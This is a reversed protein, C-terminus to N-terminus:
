DMGFDLVFSKEETVEDRAVGAEEAIIVRLQEWVRESAPGQGLEKLVYRFLAGVTRLNAAVRNDIKIGFEEEVRMVLGVVDLGM